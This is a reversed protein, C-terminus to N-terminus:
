DSVTEDGSTEIKEETREQQSTALKSSENKQYLENILKEYWLYNEEGKM